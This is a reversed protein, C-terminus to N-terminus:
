RVVAHHIEVIGPRARLRTTSATPCNPSATRSASSGRASVPVYSAATTSVRANPCVASRDEAIPSPVHGIPPARYPALSSRSARRAIAAASSAPTVQKSV